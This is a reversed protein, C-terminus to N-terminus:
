SNQSVTIQASQIMIGKYNIQPKIIATIIQTGNELNEDETFNAIVRMGEHYPKGLMDVLEYGNALLNDKMQNIAKSLQKHGRVDKDMKYLTMEMFTIRDALAKILQVEADSSENSGSAKGVTSAIKQLEGIEIALQGVIKGNLEEAAKKLSEIKNDGKRHLFICIIISGVFALCLVVIGWITKSQLNNALGITQEAQNKVQVRTNGISANLSDNVGTLRTDVQQIDEKIGDITEAQKLIDKQLKSQEVQLETIAGKLAVLQISDAQQQLVVRQKLEVLALSDTNAFVVTSVMLALSSLLSIKKM